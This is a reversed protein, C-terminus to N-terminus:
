PARPEGRIVLRVVALLILEVQDVRGAVHIEGVLDRAAQLRAFARQQHHIRRLAHLRLRQGVGIERQLWLRSIMGTMLLISRGDASGSRMRSCISCTIPSSALSATSALALCPMPM